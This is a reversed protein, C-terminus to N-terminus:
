GEKGNTGRRPAAAAKKAPTKGTTKRTPTGRATQAGTSPDALPRDGVTNGDRATNEDPPPTEPETIRVDEGGGREDGPAVAPRREGRRGNRIDDLLENQESLRENQEGLRDTQQRVLGCLEDVLEALLLTAASTERQQPTLGAAVRDGFSPGRDDRAV